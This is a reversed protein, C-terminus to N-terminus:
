SAPSYLPSMIHRRHPVYQAKTAWFVVNKMTVATFVEFRVSKDLAISLLEATDEQRSSFLKIYCTRADGAAVSCEVASFTAQVSAGELADNRTM